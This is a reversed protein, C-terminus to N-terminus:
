IVADKHKVRPLPSNYKYWKGTSLKGKFGSPLNGCCLIEGYINDEVMRSPLEGSLEVIM